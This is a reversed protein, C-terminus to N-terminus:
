NSAQWLIIGDDGGSALVTGDPSFAISHVNGSHGRLVALESRGKIDWLRITGDASASALVTGDPSFVLSYSYIVNNHGKLSAIQKPNKITSMDWLQIAGNQDGTALLSDDPAFAVSLVNDSGPHLVTIAARTGVDWLRITGDASASALITGAANFTVCWVPQTHGELLVKQMGTTVDWLQVANGWDGSAVLTSDRSFVISTAAGDYPTNKDERFRIRQTRAMVDWLEITNPKGDSLQLDLTATVLLKGDPSFALRRIRKDPSVLQRPMPALTKADYLKVGSLGAVALIKGDPSWALQTVQERKLVALQVVNVANSRTISSPQTPAAAITAIDANPGYFSGPDSGATSSIAVLIFLILSLFLPHAKM